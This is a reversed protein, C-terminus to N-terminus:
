ALRRGLEVIGADPGGYLLRAHDAPGGFADGALAVIGRALLADELERGAGIRSLDAFAFIGATPPVVPVDATRLTEVLLDRKGRFLGFVTDLWDQPGTVAAEAAAQPIDGVNIADWEFATHVRDLLPAPAHVYGVRWHTFAYNKSLSTVTVLDPHRDRLSQLPVYGPGDHVYREYSEDSLVVLGHRAALDVLEALRDRTPTHGTPNNPNCLLLARTAPTIAAALAAPDAAWGDGARAPVHVPHAGAMRVMGDFFYTPTPVLVEDGPRLLARLVVSMGHQAGHTVLLERDPDDAGIRAALAARLSPSGRSLRPFPTGAVARVAEVVHEPMPLVPVGGLVVPDPRSAGREALALAPLRDLM